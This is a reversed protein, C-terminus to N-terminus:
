GNIDGETFDELTSRKKTKKPKVPVDTNNNMQLYDVYANNYLGDEDHEQLEFADFPMDQIMKQKVYNQKKEKQIRRLFAYWIIQTFYAFPNKSKDPDFNKVYQICNEIGDSIMEERYTYNLFNPKYSLHTAIQLICKGVYEPVRPEAEGSEHAEAIKKRYEILAALLEANNVYHTAM